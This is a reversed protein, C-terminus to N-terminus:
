KKIHGNKTLNSHESYTIPINSFSTEIEPNLLVMLYVWLVFAIALALLKTPIDTTFFKKM